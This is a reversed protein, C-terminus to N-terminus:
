RSEEKVVCLWSGCPGACNCLTRDICEHTDCWPCRPRKLADYVPNPGALPHQRDAQFALTLLCAFALVCLLFLIGGAEGALSLLATM